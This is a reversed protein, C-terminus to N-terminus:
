RSRAGMEILVERVLDPPVTDTVIADGLTRPLVWRLRGADRKKDYGMVQYIADVDHPPCDTPLGQRRLTREIVEALSPEAVGHRVALRAAAVIGVAVGEGHRLEYGSLAELAHGVTHGLNLVARRGRELPDEEVVAIKVALARAIRDVADGTVWSDPKVPARAFVSFLEPDGLIGHKIMEALGSRLEVGPLTALTVPDIVVLDPHKFAGVLNKGEPLDVGTKGGVSSDVMALLTTPVHIFRVGRLFTAAAFGAIDGTVGGGLGLIVDGRDMGCRVLREYIHRVTDLTKYREGDPILCPFTRFGADELVSIAEEGYLPFVIPNSVVVVGTGKRVGAARIADGLHSLLGSGLLIAYEGKPPCRVMLQKLHGLRVVDAAVEDIPRGTTDVHWPLADYAERREALLAEITAGRETFTLLPRDRGRQLRRSLEELECTLCVITGTKMMENRNDPDVLAGGGTAIVLGKRSGLERCLEAELERFTDEGDERFIDVISRGARAEIEADMDVFPRGLHHAVARGVASKGVGMFGTLILHDNPDM